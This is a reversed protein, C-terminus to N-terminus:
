YSKEYLKIFDKGYKNVVYELYPKIENKGIIKLKETKPFQNLKAQWQSSWFGKIEVYTDDVKWDPMYLHKRDEFFYEFQKTNREFTIGHELNYIVYALEWSSDCFYGKYWGEKGRGSGKRYGGSKGNKKATESIKRKAKESHPHSNNWEIRNPNNKCRKEHATLHSRYKFFQGCHLCNGGPAFVQGQHCDNKHKKLDRRSEGIYECFPCPWDLHM